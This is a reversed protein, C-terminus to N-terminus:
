QGWGMMKPAFWGALGGIAAGIVAGWLGGLWFGILAGALAGGGALVWPSKLWSGVGGSQETTTAEQRPFPSAPEDLESRPGDGRRLSCAGACPDSQLMGRADVPAVRNQFSGDFSVDGGRHLVSGASRLSPSDAPAVEAFLPAACLVLAFSLLLRKM